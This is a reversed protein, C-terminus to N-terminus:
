CTPWRDPLEPHSHQANENWPSYHPIGIDDLLVPTGTRTGNSNIYYACNHKTRDRVELQMRYQVIIGSTIALKSVFYQAWTPPPKKLRALQSKRIRQFQLFMILGTIGHVQSMAYHSSYLPLSKGQTGWRRYPQLHHARNHVIACAM